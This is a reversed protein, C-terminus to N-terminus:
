NIDKKYKFEKIKYKLVNLIKENEEDEADIQNYSIDLKELNPFKIEQFIDIESIDNCNLNLEKLEKLDLAELFSLDSIGNSQLNLKKLNGLIKKESKEKDYETFFMHAQNLDLIELNEFNDFLSIELEINSDERCFEGLYLEKLEPFKIDKLNNIDNIKNFYLNLNKLNQFQAKELAKIENIKNVCLDLKELTNIKMKEFVDINEIINRNLILEKLNAFNMESLVNLDKINNGSLILTELKPM